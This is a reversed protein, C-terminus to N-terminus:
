FTATAVILLTLLLILLSGALGLPAHLSPGGRSANCLDETCCTTRVSGVVLDINTLALSACVGSTSCLKTFTNFGIAGIVNTQCTDMGETCNVPGNGNCNENSRAAICTFCQLARAPTVTASMTVILVLLLTSFTM